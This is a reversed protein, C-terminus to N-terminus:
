SAMWHPVDAQKFVLVLQITLACSKKINSYVYVTCTYNVDVNIYMYM